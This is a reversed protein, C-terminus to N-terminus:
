ARLDYNAVAALLEIVGTDGAQDVTLEILAYADNDMWFPTDLTLTMKHQAVDVREEAADHGSDYTFTQAAVVAVATDAGRAVKNFIAALATLAAGTIEFDIEVSKLYAGKLGASNSPIVIPINITSTQDADNVTRCITGAVQGAAHTWTGTVPHFLTPPIYQSMHTDHVMGM